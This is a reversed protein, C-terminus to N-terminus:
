FTAVASDDDRHGITVKARKLGHKTAGDWFASLLDIVQKCSGRVAGQTADRLQQQAAEDLQDCAKAGDGAAIAAHYARVADAPNGAGQAAAGCGALALAGLLIFHRGFKM